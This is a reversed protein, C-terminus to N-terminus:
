KEPKHDPNERSHLSRLGSQCPNSPRWNKLNREACIAWAVPVANQTNIPM